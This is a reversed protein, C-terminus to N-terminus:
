HDSLTFFSLGIKCSGCCTPSHVSVGRAGRMCLFFHMHNPVVVRPLERRTRKTTTFTRCALACSAFHSTHTHACLCFCECVCVWYPTTTCLGIRAHGHCPAFRVCLRGDARCGFPMTILATRGVRRKAPKAPTFTPSLCQQVCVVCVCSPSAVHLLPLRSV